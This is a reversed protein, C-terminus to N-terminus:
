ALFPRRRPASVSCNKMKPRDKEMGAVGKDFQQHAQVKEGKEWYAVARFFWIDAAGGANLESSKELAKLASDWDRTRCYAVGLTGWYIGKQPDLEVARKALKVAEDPQRILSDSCTALLWALSNSVEALIESSSPRQPFKATLAECLSIAESFSNRASRSGDRTSCFGLSIRTVGSSTRSTAPSTLSDLHWAGSSTLPVGFSM